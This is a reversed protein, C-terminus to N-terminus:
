EEQNEPEQERQDGKRRGRHTLLPFLVYLLLVRVVSPGGGPVSQALRDHHLKDSPPTQSRSVVFYDLQIRVLACGRRRTYGRRGRHAERVQSHVWTIVRFSTFFGNKGGQRERLAFSRDSKGRRKSHCASAATM